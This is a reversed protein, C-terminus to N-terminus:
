PGIYLVRSQANISSRRLEGAIRLTRADSLEPPSAGNSTLTASNGTLSYVGTGAFLRYTRSFEADSGTLTFVGVEATVRPDTNAYFEAPIGTLAFAGTGATLTFGKLLGAAGGNLAFTATEAALRYGVRFQADNGTLTFAGPAAVVDTDTLSEAFSFLFAGTEAILTVGAPLGGGLEALLSHFGVTPAVIATLTADIGTLAFAGTEATLLVGRKLAADQGTLVFAGTEATMSAAVPLGGGLESLLSGFGVTAPSSGAFLLLLSV